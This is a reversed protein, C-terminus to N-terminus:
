WGCLCSCDWWVSNKMVLVAHCSYLLVDRTNQWNSTTCGRFRIEAWKSLRCISVHVPHLILSVFHWYYAYQVSIMAPNCVCVCMCLERSNEFPQFWTVRQLVTYGSWIHCTVHWESFHNDIDV